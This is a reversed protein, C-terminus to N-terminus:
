SMATTAPHVHLHNAQRVFPPMPVSQPRAFDIPRIVDGTICNSRLLVYREAVQM